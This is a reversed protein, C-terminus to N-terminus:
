CGASIKSTNSSIKVPGGEDLEPDTSEDNGAM